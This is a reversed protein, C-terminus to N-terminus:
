SERRMARRLLVNKFKLMVFKHVLAQTCRYIWWPLSPQYDHIAAFVYDETESIRFELRGMQNPIALIGGRILFLQRDASSRDPIFELCLLSSKLFTFHFDITHGLARVILIKNLFRPLWQTYIRAVHYANMGHPLPLRQISRVENRKKVNPSATAKLPKKNQSSMELSLRVADSIVTYEPEIAAPLLRKQDLTMPTNVSNILPYVLSKDAGSFLRVWLRSLSIPIYPLTLLFRRVDLCEIIEDLLGQYTYVEKSGCDFSKGWVPSHDFIKIVINIVDYIYIPQCPTRLWSPLGMVPLREVLRKLIQFSSGNPGIIISCRLVTVPIDKSSLVREVELRSSLHRSKHTESDPCIGGIYIINRVGAATAARVFNDALIYDFDAFFGQSLRNSVSMSHILYVAQDCGALSAEAQQLSYFDCLRNTVRSDSYDIGRRSLCVIDHPTHALIAQVLKTGVFGSAGAIAITQKKM